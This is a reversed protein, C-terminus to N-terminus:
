LLNYAFAHLTCLLKNVSVFALVGVLVEFAYDAMVFGTMREASLSLYTYCVFHGAVMRDAGLAFYVLEAIAAVTAALLVVVASAFYKM